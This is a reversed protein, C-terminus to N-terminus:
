TTFTFHSRNVCAAVANERKGWRSLLVGAGSKGTVASCLYEYSQADLVYIDHNM